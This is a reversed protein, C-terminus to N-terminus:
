PSNTVCRFGAFIERVYPHYWNRFAGRLAWPRTAWSGGRLVRHQRDFYVQSYGRYPYPTFGPYADFWTATWEWVNGLMDWCGYPSRGAPFYNVPTTQGVHHCHNCHQQAPLAEGWPFTQKQQTQPNWSAAKEWEAETPLRKGVFRAYADAEYWSVGCVPHQDWQTGERWYLPHTLNQTQLWEWGEPSWWQPNGYGGAAMFERYQGCTVPYADIWYTDLYVQQPPGENDLADLGTNGQEFSGASIQILNPEPSSPNVLLAEKGQLGKEVQQLALVLAITECHQSEHQLLWRWLREEQDLPATELYAFVQARITELYALIEQKDPLLAREQKPLGDAALLRRYQPFLPPHGALHELLWLGETYGIHGLHWGVPSFDPHAQRCFPERDLTEFLALTAARCQEMAQRIQLRRDALSQSQSPNSLGPKWTSTM